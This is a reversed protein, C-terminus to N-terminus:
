SPTKLTALFMLVIFVVMFLLSLAMESSLKKKEKRAQAVSHTFVVVSSCFGTVTLLLVWSPLLSFAKEGLIKWSNLTYYFLVIFEIFGAAVQLSISEEQLEVTERGREVSIKMRLVDIANKVKQQALIYDERDYNLEELLYHYGEMRPAFIRDEGAVLQQLAGEMERVERRLRGIRGSLGELYQALEIYISNMADINQEFEELEIHKGLLRSIERESEKRKVRLAERQEEFFEKERGLKRNLLDVNIFDRYFGESAQPSNLLYTHSDGEKQLLFIRGSTVETSAERSGEGQGLYMFTEGLFHTERLASRLTSIDKEEQLYLQVVAVGGKLYFNAEGEPSHCTRILTLGRSEQLSKEERGQPLLSLAAEWVKKFEGNQIFYLFYSLSM